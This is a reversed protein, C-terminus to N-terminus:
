DARLSFFNPYRHGHRSMWYRALGPVANNSIKFPSSDYLDTHYLMNEGITRASYRKRGTAAMQLAREEFTKYIHDNRNLWRAFGKPNRNFNIDFNMRSQQRLQM